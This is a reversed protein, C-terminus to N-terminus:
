FGYMVGVRIASGSIDTSAKDNLKVISMSYDAWVSLTRWVIFACGAYADGGYGVFSASDGSAKENFWTVRANLGIYPYVFGQFPYGARVGVSYSNLSVKVDGSTDSGQIYYLGGSMSIYYNFKYFYELGGGMLTDYYTKFPTKSPTFYMYYASLGTPVKKEYAEIVAQFADDYRAMDIAKGDTLYNALDTAAMKMKNKDKFQLSKVRSLKVTGTSRDLMKATVHYREDEFSVTGYIIYDTRLSEMLKKICADDDCKDISMRIEEQQIVQKVEEDSTISYGGKAVIVESIYDKVREGLTDGKPLGKTVVFPRIYISKEVAYGSATFIM